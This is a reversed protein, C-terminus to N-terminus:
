IGLEQESESRNGEHVLLEAAMFHLYLVASERKHDERQSKKAREIERERVCDGAKSLSGRYCEPQCGNEKLSESCQFLCVPLVFSNWGQPGEDVFVCLFM